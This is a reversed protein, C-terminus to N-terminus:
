HLESGNIIELITRTSFEMLFVRMKLQAAVQEAYERFSEIREKDAGVLPLQMNGSALYAIVGQSGNQEEAVWAYLKEIILPMM